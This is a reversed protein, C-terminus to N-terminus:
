STNYEKEGKGNNGKFFNWINILNSYQQANGMM